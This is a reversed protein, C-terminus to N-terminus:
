YRDESSISIWMCCVQRRVQSSQRPDGATGSLVLILMISMLRRIPLCVDDIILARLKRQEEESAGNPDIPGGESNVPAGRHDSALFGSRLAM